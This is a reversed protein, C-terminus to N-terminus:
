ATTLLVCYDVFFVCATSSPKKISYMGILQLNFELVGCMGKSLLFHQCYNKTLIEGGCINLRLNDTNKYASTACVTTRKLASM